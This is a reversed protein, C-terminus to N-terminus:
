GGGPYDSPNPQPTWDIKAATAPNILWDEESGRPITSIVRGGLRVSPTTPLSELSAPGKSVDTLTYGTRILACTDEIPSKKGVITRQLGMLGPLTRGSRSM